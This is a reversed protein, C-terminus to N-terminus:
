ISCQASGQTRSEPMTARPGAQRWFYKNSNRTRRAKLRCLECTKREEPILETAGCWVCTKEVKKIKVFRM